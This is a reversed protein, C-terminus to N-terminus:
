AQERESLTKVLGGITDGGSKLAGLVNKIPSQLLGLVDGVLENKSKISSLAELQDEGAFIAEDISAGKLLPKKKGEKYYKKLMKAPANPTEPSFLVGTFGKLTKDNLESYDVGTTELAKYILTNKAVRYEFGEKFCRGRFDNIEEVTMEGSNLFYFYPTSSFKEKLEGVIAEKEERTM